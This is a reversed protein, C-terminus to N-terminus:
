PALGPCPGDSVTLAAFIEDGLPKDWRQPNEKYYIDIMAIVQDPAIKYELCEMLPFYKEGRHEFYGNTFGWYLSLKENSSALVGWLKFQHLVAHYDGSKQQCFCEPSNCVLVLSIAFLIGTRIQGFPKM